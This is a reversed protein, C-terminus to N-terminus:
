LDRGHGYAGEQEDGAIAFALEGLRFRRLGIRQDEIELIGDRRFVDLARAPHHLFEQLRAARTAALLQPHADIRDLRRLREGVEGRDHGAPRVADHQGLRVRRRFGDRQSM